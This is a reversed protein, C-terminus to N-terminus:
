GSRRAAAPASAAPAEGVGVSVLLTTSGVRVETDQDLTVTGHVREGGVFTGNASGLDELQVGDRVPRVAAHRRSVQEDSVFVDAGERGIILERDIERPGSGPAAISRMGIM